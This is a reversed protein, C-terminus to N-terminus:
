TFLPIKHTWDIYDKVIYDSYPAISEVSNTTALGVVTMKAARVAKLGNFSDEFGVCESPDIGFRQAGLLYCQPDPKSTTFDEATLICDMLQLIEPRKKYVNRMKEKNSSTVIATKVGLKRIDSVFEPFGEIYEFPMEAEFENIDKVITQQLDERGKFYQNFIQVLTQGKIKKALRESDPVYRSMVKAWFDTYLPETNFVVGDLDFLAAQKM